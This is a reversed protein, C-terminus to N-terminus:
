SPDEGEIAKRVGESVAAAFGPVSPDAIECIVAPMRTERLLRSTRGIVESAGVDAAVLADTIGRAVRYGGESRMSTSEFYACQTLNQESETLHIVLATDAANARAALAGTEEGAEVFTATAGLGALTEAVSRALSSPGDATVLVSLGRLTRTGRRLADRERTAAVSGPGPAGLRSLAAHTEPGCIRDVAIGADRQFAVLAGETQPGFIGDTRGADFGLANLRTQLDVVDDGRQMPTRLCLLRSGRVYGSEDIAGWTEPGCIGDVRLRRQEQFARVAAVTGPGYEEDERPDFGAARLHQQLVRVARGRAGASLLPADNM